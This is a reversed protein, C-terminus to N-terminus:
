PVGSVTVEAAVATTAGAPSLVGGVRLAMLRLPEDTVRVKESARVVDPRGAVDAKTTCVTDAVLVTERSVTLDTKISEVSGVPRRSIRV